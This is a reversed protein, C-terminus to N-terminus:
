KVRTYWFDYKEPKGKYTGDIWAHLYNPKVFHYVVRQPFDHKPDEFIFQNNKASTLKFSNKDGSKAGTVNYSIVGAKNVLRVRELMTTDKGKLDFAISRLENNNVKIWKECSYGVATKMKWTGGALNYLRSFNDASIFSCFLLLTAPLYRKMNLYVFL